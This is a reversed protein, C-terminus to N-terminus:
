ALAAEGRNVAAVKAGDIDVGIVNYGRAASVAAMPLGLRGLGFISITPKDSM